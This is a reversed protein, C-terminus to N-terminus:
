LINNFFRIICIFSDLLLPSILLINKILNINNESSYLLSVLFSGLFLSGTDGMFIKSPSWNFYLFATLAGIIPSLFHFQFNLTTLIVIISGCVLGDIGDMFNIFNIIASGFFIMLFFKLSTQDKYFFGIEQSNLFKIIVLLTIIQALYRLLKSLDFKDDLLGILALPLSFLALYYGQYIALIAYVIIFLIGGSTPKVIKHM